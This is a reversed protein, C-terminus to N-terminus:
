QAGKGPESGAITQCNSGPGSGTAAAPRSRPLRPAIPRVLTIWSMESWGPSSGTTSRATSCSASMSAPNEM